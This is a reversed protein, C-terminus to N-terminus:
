WAGGLIAEDVYSRIEAIDAETWYDVGKQPTTGPEGAPIGFSITPNTDTGGMTAEAASGPELTSVTGITIKPTPGPDGKLESLAILNTWSSEGVYQWQIYGDSVRLAVERGDAGGEASGAEPIDIILAASGDYTGAAAGTFTLAYPNPLRAPIAIADILNKLIRGQNASLPKNTSTSTLNDVIDSVSVKGTTIQDILGRNSKIYAVIESLQDLTIDDSDAIANVRQSLQALSTKVAEVAINVANSTIPLTNGDTVEKATNVDLKGNQITLTEGLDFALGGSGSKAAENIAAVLTAKALTELDELNGIIALIQEWLAPDPDVSDGGTGASPHILVGRAMRRTTLRLAGDKGLGVLGVRLWGAVSLAVAPVTVPEGTWLVPEPQSMLADNEFVATITLSDWEPDVEFQAMVAGATGEVPKRCPNKWTIQQEAVSFYLTQM